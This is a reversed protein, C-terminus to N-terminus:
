GDDAILLWDDDDIMMWWGGRALVLWCSRVQSTDENMKYQIQLEGHKRRGIESGM